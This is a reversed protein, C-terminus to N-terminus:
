LINKELNNNTVSQDILANFRPAAVLASQCVGWQVDAGESAQRWDAMSSALEDADVVTPLATDGVFWAEEGLASLEDAALNRLLTQLTVAHQFFGGHACLATQELDAWGSAPSYVLKSDAVVVRHDTPEEARRM